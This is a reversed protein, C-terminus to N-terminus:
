INIKNFHILNQLKLNFKRDIYKEYLPYHTITPLENNMYRSNPNNGAWLM